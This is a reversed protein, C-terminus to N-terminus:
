NLYIVLKYGHCTTMGVFIFLYKEILIIPDLYIYGYVCLAFSNTHHYQCTHHVFQPTTRLPVADPSPCPKSTQRNVMDTISMFNAQQPNPFMSGADPLSIIDDQAEHLHTKM